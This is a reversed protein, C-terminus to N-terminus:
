TFYVIPGVEEVFIRREMKVFVVILNSEMVALVQVMNRRM